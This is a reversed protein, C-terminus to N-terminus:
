WLHYLKLSFKFHYRKIKKIYSAIIKKNFPFSYKNKALNTEINILWCVFIITTAEKKDLRQKLWYIYFFIM